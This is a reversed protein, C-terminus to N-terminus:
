NGLSIHKGASEQRHDETGNIDTRKRLDQKGEAYCCSHAQKRQLVKCNADWWTCYKHFVPLLCIFTVIILLLIIESRHSSSSIFVVIVARHLFFIKKLEYQLTNHDGRKLMGQAWSKGKLAQTSRQLLVIKRYPWLFHAPLLTIWQLAWDIVCLSNAPYACNEMM